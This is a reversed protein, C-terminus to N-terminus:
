IKSGKECLRRTAKVIKHHYKNAAHVVILEMHMAHSNGQKTLGYSAASGQSKFM